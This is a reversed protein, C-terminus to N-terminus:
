ITYLLLNELRNFRFTLHPPCSSFGNPVAAFHPQQKSSFKMLSQFALMEFRKLNEGGALMFTEGDLFIAIISFTSLFPVRLVFRLM